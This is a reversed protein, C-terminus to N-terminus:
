RISRNLIQSHVVSLVSSIRDAVKEAGTLRDRGSVYDGWERQIKCVFCIALARRNGGQESDPDYNACCHACMELECSSCILADDRRCNCYACRTKEM